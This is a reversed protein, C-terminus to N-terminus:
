QDARASRHEVAANHPAVFVVREREYRRGHDTLAVVSFSLSYGAAPRGNFQSDAPGPLRRITLWAQGLWAANVGAKSMQDAFRTTAFVM